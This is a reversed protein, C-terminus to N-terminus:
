GSWGFSGGFGRGDGRKLYEGSGGTEEVDEIVFRGPWGSWM